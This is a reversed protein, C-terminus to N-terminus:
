RRSKVWCCIGPLAISCKLFRKLRSGTNRKLRAANIGTFCNRTISLIKIFYFAFGKGTWNRWYEIRACENQKKYAAQSGDFQDTWVDPLLFCLLSWLPFQFWVCNKFACVSVVICASYYKHGQGGFIGSLLRRPLSVKLVAEDGSYSDCFCNMRLSPRPVPHNYLVPFSGTGASWRKHSHITETNM